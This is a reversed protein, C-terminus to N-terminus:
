GTKALSQLRQGLTRKVAQDVHYEAGARLKLREKRETAVWFPVPLEPM